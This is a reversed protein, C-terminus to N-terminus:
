KTRSRAAEILAATREYWPRAGARRELAMGARARELAEDRRGLRLALRALISDIAGGCDAGIGVLAMEGAHSLLHDYCWQPDPEGILAAVQAWYAVAQLWSWSRPPPRFWQRTMERAREMDGREAYGLAAAPAALHPISVHDPNIAQRELM